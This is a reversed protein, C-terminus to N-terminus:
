PIRRPAARRLAYLLALDLNADALTAPGAAGLSPALAEVATVQERLLREAEPYRRQLMRMAGVNGTTVARNLAARPGAAEWAALSRQFAAQAQDWEGRNVHVLGLSNALGGLEVAHKEAGAKRWLEQARGLQRVAEDSDGRMFRVTGVRYALDAPRLIM